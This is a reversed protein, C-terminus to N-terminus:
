MQYSDEELKKIIDIVKGAEISKDLIFAMDKEMSPYKPAEKYKLPKIETMLAQLSIEFVYVEDKLIKPHVRGIIGIEKKDLLIKASIGPHLDDVDVQVLVIDIKLDWIIM